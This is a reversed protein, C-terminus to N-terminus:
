EPTLHGLTKLSNALRINTINPIENLSQTQRETGSVPMYAIKKENM